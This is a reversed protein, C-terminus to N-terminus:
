FLPRFPSLPPRNSANSPKGNCHPFVLALGSLARALKVYARIIPLAPWLSRDLTLMLQYIDDKTGDACSFSNYENYALRNLDNETLAITVPSGLTGSTSTYEVIDGAPVCLFDNNRQQLDEKTTTPILPLDALTKINAININNKAFLEKYFPSHKSVYQLLEQLKQEQM